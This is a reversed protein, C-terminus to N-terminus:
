TFLGHASQEGPMQLGMVKTSSICLAANTQMIEGKNPVALVNQNTTTVAASSDSHLALQQRRSPTDVM